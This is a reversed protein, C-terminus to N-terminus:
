KAMTNETRGQLWELASELLLQLLKVLILVYSEQKFDTWLNGNSKSQKGLMTVGYLSYSRGNWNKGQRTRLQNIAKM